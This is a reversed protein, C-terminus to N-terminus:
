ILKNYFIRTSVKHKFKPKLYEKDIVLRRFFLCDTDWGTARYDARRKAQRVQHDVQIDGCSLSPNMCACTPASLESSIWITHSWFLKWTLLLSLTLGVGVLMVVLDCSSWDTGSGDIRRAVMWVGRSWGRHLLRNEMVGGVVETENLESAAVALRLRPKNLRLHDRIRVAAEWRENTNNTDAASRNSFLANRRCRPLPQVPSDARIISLLFLFLRRQSVSRYSRSCLIGPCTAARRKTIETLILCRLM